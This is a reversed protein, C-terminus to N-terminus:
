AAVLPMDNAHEPTRAPPERLPQWVRYVTEGSRKPVRMLQFTVTNGAEPEFILKVRYDLAQAYRAITELALHLGETGEIQSLRSRNKFGLREALIMQSVGRMERLSRLTEGLEESLVDLYAEKVQPEQLVEAAYEKFSTLKRKM